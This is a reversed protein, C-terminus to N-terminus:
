HSEKKSYKDLNICALSNPFRLEGFIRGLLAYTVMLPRGRLTQSKAHFATFFIFIDYWHEYIGLIVELFSTFFDNLIRFSKCQLDLCWSVLGMCGEEELAKWLSWSHLRFCGPEISKM